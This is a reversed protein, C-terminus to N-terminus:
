MQLYKGLTDFKQIKILKREDKPSHINGIPFLRNHSWMLDTEKVKVKSGM